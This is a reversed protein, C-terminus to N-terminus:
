DERYRELKLPHDGFPIRYGCFFVLVVVDVHNARDSSGGNCCCPMHVLKELGFLFNLIRKLLRVECLLRGAALCSTDCARDKSSRAPACSAAIGTRVRVDVGWCREINEGCLEVDVCWCRERAKTYTRASTALVISLVLFILFFWHEWSEGATSVVHTPSRRPPGRPATLEDGSLCTRPPHHESVAM